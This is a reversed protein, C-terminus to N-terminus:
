VTGSVHELGLRHRVRGPHGLAALAAIIKKKM